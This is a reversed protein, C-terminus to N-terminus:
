CTCGEFVVQATNSERDSIEQLRAGCTFTIDKITLHRNQRSFSQTHVASSCDLCTHNQEKM